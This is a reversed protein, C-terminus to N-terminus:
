GQRRPRFMCWLTQSGLAGRATEEFGAREYFRVNAPNATELYVGGSLGDADSLACFAALLERGIGQGQRAPDVGIVGLYYHPSTPMGRRAVEDYVSMRDPLGPVAREFRDWAQAWDPPWAPPATAYGMAAGVTDAGDSAVLVPMHLALRAGMLLSFFQTVRGRYGPGTQLLFGTIPDEAFADALCDVAQALDATAAANIRM